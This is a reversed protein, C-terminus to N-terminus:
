RAGASTLKPSTFTRLPVQSSATRIRDSSRHACTFSPPSVPKAMPPEARRTGSCSVSAFAPTSCRLAAHARAALGLVANVPEDVDHDLLDREDIAGGVLVAKEDHLPAVVHVCGRGVIRRGGRVRGL